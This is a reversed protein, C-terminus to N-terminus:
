SAGRFTKLPPSALFFSALLADRRVRATQRSSSAIGHLRTTIDALFETSKM